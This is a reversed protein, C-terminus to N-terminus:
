LGSIEVGKGWSEHFAEDAIDREAFVTREHDVQYSWSSPVRMQGATINFLPLPAWRFFVDELRFNAGGPWAYALWLRYQYEPGFLHGELFTRAQVVRFNGFDAGNQGTGDQAGQARVDHYTYRFQVSTMVRAEFLGDASTTRLGSEGLDSESQAALTSAFLAALILISRSANMANRGTVM